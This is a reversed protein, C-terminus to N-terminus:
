WRERPNRCHVALHEALLTPTAVTDDNLFLLYKGRAAEVGARRASGAGGNKQRVYRIEGFPYAGTRCLDETGDTSGDDIVVVEYCSAPLTQFSLAGLA